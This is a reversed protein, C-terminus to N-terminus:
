IYYKILRGKRVELYESIGISNDQIFQIIKDDDISPGYFRHSLTILNDNNELLVTREQKANLAINFLNSITFNIVKNLNNQANVDPNYDDPNSGNGVQLQGIVDLYDDYISIIKEIVDIVEGARLSAGNTGSALSLSSLLSTMNNEFLAKKSLSVYGYTILSLMSVLLTTGQDMLLNVRTKVDTKFRVPAEIVLQMARIAALPEATAANIKTEANNFANFYDEFESQLAIKTKGKAFLSENNKLMDSPVPTGTFTFATASAELTRIHLIEIEEIANKVIKVGKTENTEILTGNIKTYNVSETNDFSLSIPQVTLQGYLPHSITWARKDLSAEEFRKTTDLHNEGQFYVELPFVRGKPERRDVYTGQTGIFEFQSVNFEYAKSAIRWKVIFVSGEGTIIKYESKISEEWSM